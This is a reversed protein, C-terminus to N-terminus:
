REPLVEVMVQIAMDGARRTAHRTVIGRGDQAVSDSTAGLTVWEGPRARLTTEAETVSFAPPSGPGARAAQRSIELVVEDGALRPTVFFGATADRYDFGQEAFPLAGGGFSQWVPVPEVTGSRIFAPRGELTQVRESRENAGQTRLDRPPLSSGRSGQHADRQRVHVVLRRPPHDIQALLERIEELREPSARVILQSGFASVSEDPGLLPRIVPVVDEPLRAALPVVETVAQAVVSTTLIGAGLAALIRRM